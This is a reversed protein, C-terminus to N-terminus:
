AAARSREQELLSVLLGELTHGAKLTFVAVGAPCTRKFSASPRRKTIKRRANKVATMAGVRGQDVAQQVDAPLSLAAIARSVKAPSIHLRQALQQQNVNWVAMLQQYAAGSELATLDARLANEVLQFELVQDATMPRNDIVATLTKIGAMTAARLRREGDILVYRDLAADWRVKVPDTQGLDRISGALEELADDDFARRPQNVDPVIRAIEIIKAASMSQVGVAQGAHAADNQLRIGLLRSLSDAKTTM